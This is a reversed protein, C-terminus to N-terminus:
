RDGRRPVGRSSSRYGYRRRSPWTIGSVLARHSWKMARTWEDDIRLNIPGERMRMPNGAVTHDVSLCAGATRVSLHGAVSSGEGVLEALQRLAVDPARVLDEYRLLTSPNRKALGEILRNYVVWRAASVAPHFRRRLAEDRAGPPRQVPKNWSFAVGRSDRVLHVTAMSVADVHALLYGHAPDKTSDVVVRSDSVAAIANYLRGLVDTFAALRGEYRPWISPSRLLILHRQRAVTRELRLMEEVDIRNWGGYAVRGVESWFPCAMFSAGCGCARVGSLAERWIYRLEGVAVFGPLQGVLRDLLTSGSRGAGGIFLVTTPRCSPDTAETERIM